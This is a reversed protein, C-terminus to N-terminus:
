SVEPRQEFVLDFHRARADFEALLAQAESPVVAHEADPGAFAEISAVDSWFTLVMFSDSATGAGRLVQVGQNGPVKRIAPIVAETLYTFYETAAGPRSLGEWSRIVM